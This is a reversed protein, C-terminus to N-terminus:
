LPWATSVRGGTAPQRRIIGSKLGRSNLAGPVLAVLRHPRLGTVVRPVGIAAMRRAGNVSYIRSQGVPHAASRHHKRQRHHGAAGVRIGVLRLGAAGGSRAAVVGLVTGCGSGPEFYEFSKLVRM